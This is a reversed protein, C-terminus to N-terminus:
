VNGVMCLIAFFNYCYSYYFLHKRLIYYEKGDVTRPILGYQLISFITSILYDIGSAGTEILSEKKLSDFFLSTHM